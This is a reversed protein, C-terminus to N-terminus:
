YLSSFFSPFISYRRSSQVFFFSFCDCHALFGAGHHTTAVCLSCYLLLPCRLTVFEKVFTHGREAKLSNSIDPLMIMNLKNRPKHV